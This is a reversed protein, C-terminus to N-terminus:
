VCVRSLWTPYGNGVMGHSIQAYKFQQLPAEHEGQLM